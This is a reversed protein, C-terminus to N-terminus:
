SVPKQPRNRLNFGSKNGKPTAVFIGTEGSRGVLSIHAEMVMIKRGADAVLERGPRDDGFVSTLGGHHHVL